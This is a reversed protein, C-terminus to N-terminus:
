EAAKGPRRTKAHAMVTRALYETNSVVAKVKGKLANFAVVSPIAVLLGIGTAILAESIGAMVASAGGSIDEALDVFAKIIGLVTGFLGIFPANNGLTGLVILNKDYGLREQALAGLMEEEMVKEGRDLSRICAAVVRGEMGPLKEAFDLAERIRGGELLERLRKRAPMVDVAQRRYFLWREFVVGVSLASLGILLYMVWEAGTATVARTLIRTLQVGLVFRMVLWAGIVLVILYVLLSFSAGAMLRRPAADKAESNGM